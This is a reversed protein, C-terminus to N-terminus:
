KLLGKLLGKVRDDGIKEEIVDKAKSKAVAESLSSFDLTYKPKQFSGTVRIPIPIGALDSLDEGGQGKATAVVTATVLYDVKETPLDAKGKGGIRLLPTSVVLDNNSALGNTLQVTGRMESFDTQLEEEEPPLKRGKLRASAERIMRGINVGKVAGDTFAFAAEGNLTRKIAEADAGVARLTVSINGEGTIRDQGQLDKFMPGAQVGSLIENLAVRPEKGRADLAIDGKYGGEYLSASIPHLRILGNRAKVTATVDSMNLKAVKLKGIRMSGAVDLTRLAEHPAGAAGAGAAGSAATGPTAGSPEGGEKAPPLYRDADMADLTLEFRLAQSEMDTVGVEGVLTSDDLKVTLPKVIIRNPGGGISAQLSARTLAKPDATELPEGLARLIERPNFEAVSLAGKLTPAGDFDEVQLDGTLLLDLVKLALNDVAIRKNVGDHLVDARLNVSAKGGPLQEGTFDGQLNLNSLRAVQSEPDAELTGDLTLRGAIRPEGVEVDLGVSVDVPAGPALAGTKVSLNKVDYRQGKGADEWSLRADRIDIGGLAFAGAATGGDTGGTTTGTSSGTGADGASKQALDDWNSRGKADRGLNLTLGHVTVTDMVLRRSLLPFLKVRVNVKETRAFVSESFGTANSVELTGLEVGLWPFVTLAIDGDISLDRGTKDKVAAIIEGKYDNPDVVFPLVIAAVVLLAVAGAVIIAVIKFVSKM